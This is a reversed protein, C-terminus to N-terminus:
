TPIYIAFSIIEEPKTIHFFFYFKKGWIYGSKVCNMASFLKPKNM